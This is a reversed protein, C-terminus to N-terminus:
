QLEDFAPARPNGAWVSAKKRWACTRRV